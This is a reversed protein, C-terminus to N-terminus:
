VTLVEAKWYMGDGAEWEVLRSLSDLHLPGELHKVGAKFGVLM